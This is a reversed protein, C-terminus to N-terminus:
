EHAGPNSFHKGDCLLHRNLKEDRMNECGKSCRRVFSRSEMTATTNKNVAATSARTWTRMRAWTVSSRAEAKRVSDDTYLLTSSARRSCDSCLAARMALRGLRLARIDVCSGSVM